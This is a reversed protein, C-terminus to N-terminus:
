FKGILQVQWNDRRMIAPEHLRFVGARVIGHHTDRVAGIKPLLVPRLDLPLRRLLWHPRARPRHGRRHGQVPRPEDGGAHVEQPLALLHGQHAEPPM